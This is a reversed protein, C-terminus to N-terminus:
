STFSIESRENKQQKQITFNFTTGAGEESEFWIKEGRTDMIKKIISLGIGTSGEESSHFKSFLQFVENGIESSIGPGNDSVSFLWNDKEESCAITILGKEKDSFKVANSILNQFVQGLQIKNFFVVPFEGKIDVNISVPIKISNIVSNLIESTQLKEDLGSADNATSYTLIGEILEDMKEVNDVMMNLSQKGEEDLSDQYDEVIWESLSSIARLPAKLDHSVVHAFENLQDNARKLDKLLKERKAEQEKKETIDRAITQVANEGNYTVLSSSAEIVKYNGKFTKIEFELSPIKEGNNLKKLREQFVPLLNESALELLDKGIVDEISDAEYLALGSANLYEIRGNKTIQIAEPQDDVLKHWREESERLSKEVREREEIVIANKLQSSVLSAITNLSQVHEDTYFDKKSHESDIVGIVEGEYKIPVTLESFRPEDDIIYDPDKTTDNILSAEGTLAVRGVIGKGLPISIPDLIVEGGPSKPGYAAIQNLERTEKDFVYVVCDEFGLEEITNKTIELAIEQITIKGLLSIALDNIARLARESKKTETLDRVFSSFFYTGDIQNPIVTLEVPFVIGQSNVATIEIRKNLVPGEGTKLFHEMGREHADRYEEPIIIESLRRGLVREKSWGFTKEAQSNWETIIGRDNIVIVADLASNIITKLKAESESLSHEVSRLKTIPRAIAFIGEEAGNSDIFLNTTQGVWVVNGSNTLVPFEYYHNEFGAKLAETFHELVEQRRDETVFETFHKGILQDSPLGLLREGFTNVFTFLGERTCFFIIDSSSNAIEQFSKM